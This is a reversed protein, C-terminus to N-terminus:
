QEEYFEFPYNVTISGLSDPVAKFKWEGVRKVVDQEFTQDGMNSQVLRVSGMLGSADIKMEVLMKGSLKVGLRLRKNYIYKLENIHDDIEKKLTSPRRYPNQSLVQRRDIEKLEAKSFRGQELLERHMKEVRQRKAVEEEGTLDLSGIQNILNIVSDNAANKRASVSRADKMLEGKLSSQTVLNSYKDVNNIFAEDQYAELQRKAEEAISKQQEYFEGLMLLRRNAQRAYVKSKDERIVTRYEMLADEIEGLEEHSRGKYFRAEAKKETLAAKQGLFISYNKIANRFDMLLYFQKAKELISLGSKELGSREKEISQIFDLLKWSLIGAQTNPYNSIVDEYIKKSNAYNGQMSFCFSKHVMIAARVEPVLSASSLVQDYIKLAENYKRNREWFYAIEIVSFIKDDDKPNILKKGLLTRITNLVLRAPIRYAENTWTNKQKKIDGSTLAQIKAELEYNSVNEEGYLMRQKILEYKAIIGFTNSAEEQSAITGLLYRIEDFRLDILGVNFLLSLGLLLFIALLKLITNM